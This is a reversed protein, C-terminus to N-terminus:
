APHTTALLKVTNFVLSGMPLTLFLRMLIIIYYKDLGRSKQGSIKGSKMVCVEEGKYLDRQKYSWSPSRVTSQCVTITNSTLPAIQRPSILLATFDLLISMHSQIIVDRSM